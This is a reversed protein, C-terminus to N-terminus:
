EYRKFWREMLDMTYDGYEQGSRGRFSNKFIKKAGENEFAYIPLGNEQMKRLTQQLDYVEKELQAVPKSVDMSNLKKEVFDIYQKHNGKHRSTVSIGGSERNRLFIGNSADDLDMGIKKLIKNNKFKKPIIHQAEYGSWKTERPLGMSEMM